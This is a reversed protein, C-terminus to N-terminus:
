AARRRGAGAPGSGGRGGREGALVEAHAEALGLRPDDELGLGVGGDVDPRALREVGVVTRPQTSRWSASSISAASCRTGTAAPSATSTGAPVSCAIPARCGAARAAPASRGRRARPTSATRRRGVARLVELQAPVRRECAISVRAPRCRRASWRRRRRGAARRPRGRSGRRACARRRRARRGREGDHEHGAALARQARAVAVLQSSRRPAVTSTGYAAPAVVTDPSMSAIRHRGGTGVAPSPAHHALLRQQLRALDDLREPADLRQRARVEGDERALDDRQHAVVARALRRQDLREDAHVRASLPSIRKSPSGTTM